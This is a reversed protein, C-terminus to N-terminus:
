WLSTESVKQSITNSIIIIVLNIVSNFLGIASTYSWNGTKLIGERFVFSSIVDSTSYILPHYLLIIKEYGLSMFQGLRLIFMIIITPAIGPLTIHWMRKFRSAGDIVAAEYLSPDISALASLYIISGWGVEQWIGSIVYIPVFNAANNLLTEPETGRFFAIIQSIFGTDSTFTKIMGCIVVLSIFHPIYTITQTFKAFRESRLENMLLALIIPAPFGAVLSTFSIWLTNKLLRGFYYSTVFTKFHELGVWPSGWIGLEPRYEKFAIILGYMPKYCFLIYYALVPIMMIYIIYNKKADRKITEFLSSKMKNQNILATKM